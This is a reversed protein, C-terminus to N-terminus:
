INFFIRKPNILYQNFAPNSSLIDIVIFLDLGASKTSSTSGQFLQIKLM